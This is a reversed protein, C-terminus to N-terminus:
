AYKEVGRLFAVEWPVAVKASALDAVYAAANAGVVQSKLSLWVVGLAGICNAVFVLAWKSLVLSSWNLQEKGVDLGNRNTWILLHIHPSHLAQLDVRGLYDKVAGFDKTQGYLFNDFLSRVRRNFVSNAVVANNALIGAREVAM